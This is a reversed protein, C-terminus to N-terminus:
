PTLGLFNQHYHSHPPTVSSTKCVSRLSQTTTAGDIVVTDMGLLYGDFSILKKKKTATPNKTLTKEGGWAVWCEFRVFPRWLDYARFSAVDRGRVHKSRTVIFRSSKLSTQCKSTCTFPTGISINNQVFSDHPTQVRCLVVNYRNQGTATPLPPNPRPMIWGSFSM